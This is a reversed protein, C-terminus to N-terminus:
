KCQPSGANRTFNVSEYNSAGNKFRPPGRPFFGFVTVRVRSAKKLQQEETIVHKPPFCIFTHFPYRLFFLFLVLTLLRFFLDGGFKQLRKM